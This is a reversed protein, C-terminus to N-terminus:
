EVIFYILFFGVVYLGCDFWGGSMVFGNFECNNM